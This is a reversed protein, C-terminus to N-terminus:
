IEGVTTIISDLVMEFTFRALLLALLCCTHRRALRVSRCVVFEEPRRSVEDALNISRNGKCM